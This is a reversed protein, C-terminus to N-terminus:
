PTRPSAPHNTMGSNRPARIATTPNARRPNAPCLKSSRPSLTVARVQAIVSLGRPTNTVLAAIAHVSVHMAASTWMVATVWMGPTRLSLQSLSDLLLGLESIDTNSSAAAIPSVPARSTSISPLWHTRSRNNHQSGAATTSESACNMVNQFSRCHM